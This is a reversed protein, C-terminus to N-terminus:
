KRPGVTTMDIPRFGLKHAPSDPPMTFDGNKPDAFGPDAYISHADQGKARWQDFTMDAFRIDKAPKGSQWYLNWDFVHNLKCEVPEHWPKGPRHMYPKDNWQGALLKAEGSGVIINREMFFSIHEEVRSRRILADRGFAFINNRVTNEKGYHQDFCADKTHHVINNEILAHSSGEDTYIGWGGYGYAEVNHILNNRVVTGPMLGLMYIGGMDSLMGQGVHHIHNYSIENHNTVSPKYGWVWGIAMASYYTHNIRNHTITNGGSHQIFVGTAAHHTLGIHHIHNDAILNNGTRLNPHSSADGGTMRVGGGGLRGMENHTFRNDRSGARIDLAYSNLNVFRCRDFRCRRAGELIVAGEVAPASQGDGADGPPLMWNTCTLTLGGFRLYEVSRGAEVDAEIRIMHPSVPAVIATNEPTQGPKPIYTLVGAPRDLYWQGPETMAEAVNEVYYRGGKTGFDDSYRYKTKFAFNVRKTKSDVTRINQRSSVWFRLTVVEVEPLNRWDPRIDKGAFTFHDGPANWPPSKKNPWDVIRYFGKKPLRTRPMSKGNVFLQKFFWKGAKVRPLDVRWKGAAVKWGTVRRGGFLVPTQNPAATYTIPARATGSDQPGFVIPETLEYRGGALLITVPGALPGASKMKRIADRAAVLSPLPADKSGDGSKDASPDVHLVVERPTTQAARAPRNLVVGLAVLAVAATIFSKKM